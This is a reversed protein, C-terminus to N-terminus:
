KERRLFKGVRNVAQQPIEYAIMLGIVIALAATFASRGYEASKDMQNIMLYYITRYIGIGPVLPFVVPMLFMTAPCYRRAAEIRSGLTVFTTAILTAGFPSFGTLHTLLWYILWGLGGIVGCDVYYRYPVIFMISFAITGVTAALFQEIAQLLM